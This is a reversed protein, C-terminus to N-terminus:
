EQGERADEKGDNEDEVEEVFYKMEPYFRNLREAIERVASEFQNAQWDHKKEGGWYWALRWRTM